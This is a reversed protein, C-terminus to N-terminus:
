GSISHHCCQLTSKNGVISHHCCQLTCVCQGQDFVSMHCEVHPPGNRVGVQLPCYLMFLDLCQCHYVATCVCGQCQCTITLMVHGQCQCTITLMVHGQCQCTITLMVHGQCQCTITLMVHGQCQCTLTLMVLGQCQCSVVYCSRSM